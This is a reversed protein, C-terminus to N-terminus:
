ITLYKDFWSETLDLVTDFQISHSEMPHNIGFTHNGEEIIMLDKLSTGIHNYIKKSEELPVVDDIEGHILLTPIELKKASELIDLNKKNKKIDNLLDLNIRMLQKTRKNEIEIYGKKHWLNIETESFREVTAIASWTVLVQINDDNSAFLIADGGGRSHGLLGIKEINILGKGLKGVLINDMICKLDGLEHSYTNIAFKELDTFNHLDSGVGNRSFNFTIVVYGADALSEATM